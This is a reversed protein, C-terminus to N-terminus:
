KVAKFYDEIERRLDEDPRPAPPVPEYRPVPSIYTKDKGELFLKKGEAVTTTFGNRTVSVAGKYVKIELGGSPTIRISFIGKGATVSVDEAMVSLKGRGENWASLKGSLLELRATSSSLELGAVTSAEDVRLIINGCLYMEAFPTGTLVRM